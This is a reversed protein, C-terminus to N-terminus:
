RVSGNHSAVWVLEGAHDDQASRLVECWSRQDSKSFLTVYFGDTLDRVENPTVRTRHLM